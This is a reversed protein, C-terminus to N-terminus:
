KAHSQRVVLPPWSVILGLRDVDRSGQICRFYLQDPHAQDFEEGVVQFRFLRNVLSCSCRRSCKILSNSSPTFNMKSYHGLKNHPM